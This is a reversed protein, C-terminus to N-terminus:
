DWQSSSKDFPLSHAETQSIRLPRLCLWFYLLLVGVGVLQWGLSGLRLGSENANHKCLNAHASYGQIKYGIIENRCRQKGPFPALLPTTGQTEQWSLVWVRQGAGASFTEWLGASGSRGEGVQQGQVGMLVVLLEWYRPFAPRPLELGERSRM